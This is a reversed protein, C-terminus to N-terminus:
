CNIIISHFCIILIQLWKGSISSSISLQSGTMSSQESASGYTTDSDLSTSSSHSPAPYRLSSIPGPILQLVANRLHETSSSTPTPLSSSRGRIETHQPSLDGDTQKLQKIKHSPSYNVQFLRPRSVPGLLDDQNNLAAAVEEEKKCPAQLSHSPSRPGVNSGSLEAETSECSELFESTHDIKMVVGEDEATGDGRVQKISGLMTGTGDSEEPNREAISECISVQSIRLDSLRPNSYYGSSRLSDHSVTSASRKLSGSSDNKDDEQSLNEELINELEGCQKVGKRAVTILNQRSSQQPTNSASLARPQVERDCCVDGETSSRDERDGASDRHVEDEAPLQLTQCFQQTEQVPPAQKQLKGAGPSEQQPSSGGTAPATEQCVTAAPHREAFRFLAQHILDM